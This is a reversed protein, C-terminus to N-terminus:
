KRKQQIYVKRKKTKEYLKEAVIGAITAKKITFYIDLSPNFKSKFQSISLTNAGLIEYYHIKHEIGWKMVGWHLFDNATRVATKPQGIWDIIRDKYCLKLGGSIIDDKYWVTFVKLNKPFYNDFVELLYDKSIPIEREQEEYRKYLRDYLVLLEEKSGLEISLGDKEAKKINRRAHISFNLDLDSLGVSIDLLYGYTPEVQYGLWKFPRCDILGPPLEFHIYTPKFNSHIFNDVRTVFDVLLSEKKDQKLNEYGLLVPGMYPIGVKPTPSFVMKLLGKKTYFVPFVGIVEKGKLGILPYLKSNTHKEVIKLWDLTHFITGYPSQEILMDWNKLEENGAIQLEINM